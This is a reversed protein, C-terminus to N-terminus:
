LTSKLQEDSNACTHKLLSFTWEFIVDKIRLTPYVISTTIINAQFNSIINNRKKSGQKRAKLYTTNKMHM